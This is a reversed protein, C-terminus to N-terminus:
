GNSTITAAQGSHEPLYNKYYYEDTFPLIGKLMIPNGTISKMATSAEYRIKPLADLFLAYEDDLVKNRVNRIDVRKTASREIIEDINPLLAMYHYSLTGGLYRDLSGNDIISQLVVSPRSVRNKTFTLDCLRSVSLLVSRIVEKNKLFENRTSTMYALVSKQNVSNRFIAKLYSRCQRITTCNCKKVTYIAVASYYAKLSTQHGMLWAHVDKDIRKFAAACTSLTRVGDKCVNKLLEPPTTESLAAICSNDFEKALELRDEEAIDICDKM